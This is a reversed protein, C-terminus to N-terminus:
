TLAAVLGSIVLYLGIAGGLAWLTMRMPTIGQKKKNESGDDFRMQDPM